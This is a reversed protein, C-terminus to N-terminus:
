LFFMWSESGVPWVLHFGSRALTVWYKANLRYNIVSVFTMIAVHELVKRVSNGLATLLLWTPDFDSVEVNWELEQVASYKCVCPRPVFIKPWWVEAAGHSSQPCMERVELREGLSLFGGSWCGGGTEEWLGLSISWLWVSSHVETAKGVQEMWQTGWSVDEVMVLSLLYESRSCM